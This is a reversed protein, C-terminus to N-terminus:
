RYPGRRPWGVDCRRIVQGGARPGRRGEGRAAQAARRHAGPQSAAYQLLTRAAEAFPRSAAGLEPPLHNFSFFQMIHEEPERDGKCSGHLRKGAAIDDVVEGPEGPWHILLASGGHGLWGKMKAQEGVFRAFADPSATPGTSDGEFRLADGPMADRDDGHGGVGNIVIKFNGM